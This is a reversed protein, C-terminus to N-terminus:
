SQPLASQFLQPGTPSSTGPAPEVTAAVSVDGAAQRHVVASWSGDPQRALAGAPAVAGGGGILWLEYLAPEGGRTTPTEPLGRVSLVVDGTPRYYTLTGSLGPQNLGAQLPQTVVPSPSHSSLGLVVALAVAGAMGAFGMVTIPRGAPVRDWWRAYWPRRPVAVRAGASAPAGGDGLSDLIRRRLEPPPGDVVAARSVTDLVQAYEREATACRACDRAHDRAGRLEDGDVDGMGALALILEADDCIV